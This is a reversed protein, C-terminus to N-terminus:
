GQTSTHPGKISDLPSAQPEFGWLPSFPFFHKRLKISAEQALFLVRLLPWFKEAVVYSQEMGSLTLM